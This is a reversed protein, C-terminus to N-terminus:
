VKAATEQFWGDLGPKLGKTIRSWYQESFVRAVLERRSHVGVKDFISKLHEQITHETIGLEGAIEHSTLGRAVLQAVQSERGTLGYAQMILPAMEAPRAQEIVVAIHGSSSGSSLRSAHVVLWQGSRTPVRTRPMLGAPVVAVELGKLKSIVSHIANPLGGEALGTVDLEGLWRDAAPTSAVTNMDDDVVLVGPGASVVDAALGQYVLSARLGEALHEALAVLYDAEADTFPHDPNRHLVLYGWCLGESVLALRLDEGIGLPGFVERFRASRSLDGGTARSLSGVRRSSNALENFKNFDESSYEIELFRQTNGRPIGETLAGTLMLTAPDATPWCWAAAPIVKTIRAAIERRLTESDYGRYCMKVIEDRTHQASWATTV